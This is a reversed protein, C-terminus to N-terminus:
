AEEITYLVVKEKKGKLSIDGIKRPELSDPPFSVKDLLRKSVMIKVGYENCTSQIRSTTNLVDGSFVIDRKLVGMEGITVKGCHIGVKFEPILGYKELYFGRKRSFVERINYFCRICNANQIGKRMRWVIVAEDGIYQYINGNTYLIPDTIDKFFDTLLEFFQIHGLQEAIGTSGKM